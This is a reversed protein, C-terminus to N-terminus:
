LHYPITNNFLCPMHSSPLHFLQITVRSLQLQFICTNQSFESSSFRRQWPLRCRSNSSWRQLEVTTVLSFQRFCNRFHKGDGGWMKSITGQFIFQIFISCASSRAKCHSSCFFASTLVKLYHVRWFFIGDKDM